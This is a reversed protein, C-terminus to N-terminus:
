GDERSMLRLQALEVASRLKRQLLEIPPLATLYEQQLQRSLTAVIQSGYEARAEALVEQRIRQGIRWYLMTLGANVTVAVASRAEEILGRFDQLLGDTETLGSM